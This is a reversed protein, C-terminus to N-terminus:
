VFSVNNFIAFIHCACGFFFYFHWIILLSKILWLEKRGFFFRWIFFDTHKEYRGLNCSLKARGIWIYRTPPQTELGDSFSAVTLNIFRGGVKLIFMFFTHSNGGGLSTPTRGGWKKPPSKSVQLYQFIKRLYSKNESILPRFVRSSVHM